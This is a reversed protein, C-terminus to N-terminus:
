WELADIQRQSLALAKWAVIAKTAGVLFQAQERYLGPTTTEGVLSWRYSFHCLEVSSFVKTQSGSSATSNDLFLQFIYSNSDPRRERVTSTCIWVERKKNM